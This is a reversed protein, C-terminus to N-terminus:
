FVTTNRQTEGSTNGTKLAVFNEKFANMDDSTLSM